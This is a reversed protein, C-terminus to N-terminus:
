IPHPVIDVYLEAIVLVTGVAHRLEVTRSSRLVAPNRCRCDILRRREAECAFWQRVSISELYRNRRQRPMHQVIANDDCTLSLLRLYCRNRLRSTDQAG